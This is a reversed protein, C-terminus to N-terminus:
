DVKPVPPWAKKARYEQSSNLVKVVKGVPFPIKKRLSCDPKKPEKPCGFFWVLKL